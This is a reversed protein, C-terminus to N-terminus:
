SNVTGALVRLESDREEQTPWEALTDPCSLCLLLYVLQDRNQAGYAPTAPLKCKPCSFIFRGGIKMATLNYIAM